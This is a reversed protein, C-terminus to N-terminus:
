RNVAVDVLESPGSGLNDDSVMLMRIRGNWDRFVSIGELNGFQGYDSRMVWQAETIHVGNVRFRRVQSRYGHSGEERELVYLMGDPGFTADCPLFNLDMPLRFAGDWGGTSSWVYSPFGYTARAPREPISYVRGDPAVAVSELGRGVRLRSFDRHVGMAEAPAGLRAYHAVRNQEEFAVYLSGDRALSLGESHRAAGGLQYGNEDALLAVQRLDFGDIQQGYGRQLRALAIFGHDSLLYVNVGDPTAIGSFDNIGGSMLPLTYRAVVQTAPISTPEHQVVGAYYTLPQAGALAPLLAALGPFLASVIIRAAKM